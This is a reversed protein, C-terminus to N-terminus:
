GWRHVRVVDSVFKLVEVTGHDGDHIQCFDDRFSLSGDLYRRSSVMENETALHITEINRISYM